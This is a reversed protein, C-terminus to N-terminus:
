PTAMKEGSEVEEAHHLTPIGDFRSLPDLNLAEDVM